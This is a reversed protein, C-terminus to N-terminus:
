YKALPVTKAWGGPDQLEVKKIYLFSVEKIEVGEGLYMNPIMGWAYPGGIYM